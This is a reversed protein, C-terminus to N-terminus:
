LGILLSFEILYNESLIERVIVIFIVVIMIIISFYLWVLNGFNNTCM